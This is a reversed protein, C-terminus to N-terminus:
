AARDPLAITSAAQSQLTNNIVSLCVPCCVPEARYHPLLLQVVGSHSLSPVLLLLVATSVQQGPAQWTQQDENAEPLAGGAPRAPVSYCVGEAPSAQASGCEDLVHEAAEGWGWGGQM